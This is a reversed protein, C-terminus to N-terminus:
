VEFAIITGCRIIRLQYVPRQHTPQWTQYLLSPVPRAAAEGLGRRATGFTVAWGDVVLTGIVTNSYSPGNSQPKLTAITLAMTVEDPLFRCPTTKTTQTQLKCHKNTVMVPFCNYSDDHFKWSVVLRPRVALNAPSLTMQKLAFTVVNCQWPSISHAARRDDITQRHRQQMRPLAKFKEAINKCWRVAWPSPCNTNFNHTLIRLLELPIPDRM